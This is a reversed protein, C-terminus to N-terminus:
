KPSTFVCTDHHANCDNHILIEHIDDSSVPQLEGDAVVTGPALLSNVRSVCYTCPASVAPHEHNPDDLMITQDIRQDRRHDDHYVGYALLM